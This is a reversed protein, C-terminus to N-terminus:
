HYLLSIAVLIACVQLEYWRKGTWPEDYFRVFEQGNFKSLIQADFVMEKFLYPNCVIDKLYQYVDCCYFDHSVDEGKYQVTVVHREFQSM